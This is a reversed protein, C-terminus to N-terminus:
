LSGVVLVRTKEPVHDLISGCARGRLIKSPRCLYWLDMHLYSRFEAHVAYSNVGRIERRSRHGVAMVDMDVEAISVSETKVVQTLSDGCGELGAM